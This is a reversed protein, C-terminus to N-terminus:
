RESLQALRTPTGARSGEAVKARISLRNAQTNEKPTILPTEKTKAKIAKIAKIAKHAGTATAEIMKHPTGKVTIKTKSAEDPRVRDLAITM